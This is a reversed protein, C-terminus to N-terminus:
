HTKWAFWFGFVFLVYLVSGFDMCMSSWLAWFFVDCLSFHARAMAMQNQSKASMCRCLLLLLLVISIHPSIHASITTWLDSAYVWVNGYWMYYCVRKLLCIVCISSLTSYIKIYKPRYEPHIYSLQCRFVFAYTSIYIERIFHTRAVWHRRTLTHPHRITIHVIILPLALNDKQWRLSDYM